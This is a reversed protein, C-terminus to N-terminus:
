AGLAARLTEAEILFRGPRLAALTAAAAAIRAAEGLPLNAALAAALSALVADTVGFLDLEAEPFPFHGVEGEKTVLSLGLSGRLALVAGFGYREALVRSATVLETDRQVPLGTALAIEGATPLVVDAGAFRALDGNSPDVLVRRDLERALAILDGALGDILVGKGYDSLVTLSTALIANRAIKLLRRGVEPGIPTAQERDARLLHHHGAIYRTKRTTRRGEEVLLWPEIRTEQGILGTLESGAGDNGVVSIFAAAAGLATLNRVVNAAGGPLDEEREILLVPVPAEPSLREARGYVYRDLMADGIVLVSVRQFRQFAATWDASPLPAVPLPAAPPPAASSKAAPSM